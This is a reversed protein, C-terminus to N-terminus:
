FLLFPPTRSFMLGTPRHRHGIWSHLTM